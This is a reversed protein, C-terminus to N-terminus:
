SEEKKNEKDNGFSFIKPLRPLRKCKDCLREVQLGHQECRYLQVTPVPRNYPKSM